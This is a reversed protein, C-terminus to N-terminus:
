GAARRPVGYHGYHPDVKREADTRRGFPRGGFPQGPGQPGHGSLLNDLQHSAPKTISERLERLLASPRKPAPAHATLEYPEPASGGSSGKRPAPRKGAQSLITKAALEAARSTDIAMSAVNLVAPRQAKSAAKTTKAASPRSAQARPAKAAALKKAAAPKKAKVAEAEGAPAAKRTAAKKTAPKKEAAVKKTKATPKVAAKASAGAKAKARPTASRTKKPPQSQAASLANSSASDM